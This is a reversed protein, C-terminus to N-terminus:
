NRPLKLDVVEGPLLNLEPPLTLAIPLGIEPITKITPLLLAGIPELQTGVKVVQADMSVRRTTRTRVNVVDGVKPHYNM